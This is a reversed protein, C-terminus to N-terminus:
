AKHCTRSVSFLGAYLERQRVQNEPYLKIRANLFAAEEHLYNVQETEQDTFIRKGICTDGTSSLLLSNSHSNCSCCVASTLSSQQGKAEITSLTVSLMQQRLSDCNPILQSRAGAPFSLASRYSGGGEGKWGGDELERIDESALPRSASVWM